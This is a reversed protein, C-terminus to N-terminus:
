ENELMEEVDDGILARQRLAPAPGKIQEAKAENSCEVRVSVAGDDWYSVQTADCGTLLATFSSKASGEKAADNPWLVDLAESANRRALAVAARTADLRVKHINAGAKARPSASALVVLRAHGEAKGVLDVEVIPESDFYRVDSVTVSKFQPKEGELCAKLKTLADLYAAREAGLRRMATTDANARARGEGTAFADGDANRSCEARAAQSTLSLALVVLAGAVGARNMM